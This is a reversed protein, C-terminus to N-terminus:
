NNSTATTSLEDPRGAEPSPTTDASNSTMGRLGWLKGHKVVESPRRDEAFARYVSFYADKAGFPYSASKLAEVIQNMTLPKGVARLVTVAAEAQSKGFFAGSPFRPVEDKWEFSVPKGPIGINASATANGNSAAVPASVTPPEGLFEELGNISRELAGLEAVLKGRKARLLELTGRIQKDENKGM